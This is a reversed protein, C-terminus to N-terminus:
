AAKQIAKYAGTMIRSRITKRILRGLAQDDIKEPASALLAAYLDVGRGTGTRIRHSAACRLPALAAEAQAATIEGSRSYVHRLAQPLVALLEEESSGTEALAMMQPSVSARVREVIAQQMEFPLISDISRRGSLAMLLLAARDSETNTGAAFGAKLAAEAQSIREPLGGPFAKVMDAGGREQILKLAYWSLVKENLASDQEETTRTIDQPLGTSAIMGTAFGRDEWPTDLLTIMLQRWAARQAAEEPERRLQAAYGLCLVRVDELSIYNLRYLAPISKVCAVIDDGVAAPGAARVHRPLIRIQGHADYAIFAHLAAAIDQAPAASVRRADEVYFANLLGDCFGAIAAGNLPIEGPASRLAAKRLQLLKARIASEMGSGANFRAEALLKGTLALLPVDTKEGRRYAEAVVYPWPGSITLAGDASAQTLEAIRQLAALEQADTKGESPLARWLAAGDQYAARYVSAANRPAAHPVLAGLRVLIDGVMRSEGIMERKLPIRLIAGDAAIGSLKVGVGSSSRMAEQLSAEANRIKNEDSMDSCDIECLVDNGAAAKVLAPSNTADSVIARFGPPLDHIKGATAATVELYVKRGSNATGGDIMRGYLRRAADMVAVGDQRRMDIRIDNTRARYAMADFAADNMADPSPLCLVLSGGDNEIAKTAAALQREAVWQMYMVLNGDANRKHAVCASLWGENRRIFNQLEKKRAAGLSQLCQAAIEYEIDKIVSISMPTLTEGGAVRLREEFARTDIKLAAAEDLWNVASGDLLYIDDATISADPATVALSAHVSGINEVSLTRLFGPLGSLKGLSQPAKGQQPLSALALAVYVDTVLPPKGDRDARARRTAAMKEGAATDLVAAYEKINEGAGPWWLLGAIQQGPFLKEWAAAREPADLYVVDAQLAQMAADTTAVRSGNCAYTAGALIEAARPDSSLRDSVANWYAEPANGMDIVPSTVGANDIALQLVGRALLRRRFEKEGLARFKMDAGAPQQAAKRAWGIDICQANANGEVPLARANVLVEQEDVPIGTSLAHGCDLSELVASYRVGVVPIGLSALANFAAEDEENEILKFITTGALNPLNAARLKKAWAGSRLPRSLLSAMGVFGFAMGNMMGATDAAGSPQAPIASAPTDTNTTLSQSATRASDGGTRKDLIADFTNAFVVASNMEMTIENCEWAKGALEADHYDEYRGPIGADDQALTPGTVIWGRMQQAYTVGPIPNPKEQNFLVDHPNEVGFGTVFQKGYMNAGEVVSNWLNLAATLYRADYGGGKTEQYFVEDIELLLRAKDLKSKNSGTRWADEGVGNGFADNDALVLLQEGRKLLMDRARARLDGAGFETTMTDSFLSIHALVLTDLNSRESTTTATLKSLNKSIYALLTDRSFPYQELGAAEQLLAPQYYSLELLQVAALLREDIDRVEHVTDLEFVKAEPHSDLFNWARLAARATALAKEHDNNEAFLQAVTAMSGVYQATGLTSYNDATGGIIVRHPKAISYTIDTTRESPGEEQYITGKMAGDPVQMALMWDAQDMLLQAMAPEEQLTFPSDPRLYLSWNNYIQNIYFMGAIMNGEPLLTDPMHAVRRVVQGASDLVPINDRQIAPYAATTRYQFAGTMVPAWTSIADASVTFSKSKFLQGNLQLIIYYEGPRTIGPDIRYTTVQANKDIMENGVVGYPLGDMLGTAYLSGNKDAIYYRAGQLDGEKLTGLGTEKLPHSFYISPSLFETALPVHASVDILPAPLQFYAQANNEEIAAIAAADPLSYKQRDAASVPTMPSYEAKVQAPETSGAGPAAQQGTVFVSAPINEHYSPGNSHASGIGFILVVIGVAAALKLAPAMVKRFVSKQKTEGAQPLVRTGWATNNSTAIAYYLMPSFYFMNLFTPLLWVYWLSKKMGRQYYYILNMMLPLIFLSALFAWPASHEFVPQLILHYAVMVPSFLAAVMGLVLLVVGGSSASFLKTRILHIILKLQLYFSKKWRLQQKNYQKFTTPTKTTVIARPNYVAKKGKLITLYTMYRDDGYSGKKGRHMQRILDEVPALLHQTRAAAKKGFLAAAREKLTPKLRIDTPAVLDELRYAALCGSACSVINFISESSKGIRFSLFYIFSQLATLWNKDPDHVYGEGAVVGVDADAFSQVIEKLANKHTFSDSDIFVLINEELGIADQPVPQVPQYYEEMGEIPTVTITEPAYGPRRVREQEELYDNLAGRLSVLVADITSPGVGPRTPLDDSPQAHENEDTYSFVMPTRMQKEVDGIIAEAEERTTIKEKKARALANAITIGAYMGDRKGANKRFNVTVVNRPYLRKAEEIQYLTDRTVSNELGRPFTLFLMLKKYRRIEDASLSRDVLIDKALRRVQANASVSFVDRFEDTSLNELLENLAAAYHGATPEKAGAAALEKLILGGIQSPETLEQRFAVANLDGDQFASAGDKSCDNIAIVTIKEPPYGNGLACLITQKAAEGENFAPTVITVNPYYKRDRPPRYFFASVLRGFAFLGVLLGYIISVVRMPANIHTVAKYAITVDTLEGFSPNDLQGVLTSAQKDLLQDYTVVQVADQRSAVYAVIEEFKAVPVESDFKPTDNFKHFLLTLSQGNEAATAIWKKVDDLTTRPTVVQTYIGYPNVPLSPIEQDGLQSSRFERLVTENVAASTQFRPSAFTTPVIGHQLLAQKARLIDARTQDPPLDAVGDVHSYTHDGIQIGAAAMQQVQEWTVYKPTGVNGAIINVVGNFGYKQLTQSFITAQDAWGDDARFTVPVKNFAAEAAATNVKSFQIGDAYAELSSGAAAAIRMKIGTVNGSSPTYAVTFYSANQEQVESLKISNVVFFTGNETYGEDIYVAIGGATYRAIDVMGQAVYQAGKEVAVIRSNATGPSSISLSNKVAPWVGHGNTDVSWGQPVDWGALPNAALDAAAQKDAEAVITYPSYTDSFYSQLDAIARGKLFWASGFISLVMAVIVIKKVLAGASKKKEQAGTVPMYARRGSLKGIYVAGDQVFGPLMRLSLRLRAHTLLMNMMRSRAAAFTTRGAEDAVLGAGAVLWSQLYVAGDRTTREYADARGGLDDTLVIEHARGRLGKVFAKLIDWDICADIGGCASVMDADLQRAINEREIQWWTDFQAATTKKELLPTPITIPRGFAYGKKLVGASAVAAAVTKLDRSYIGRLKLSVLMAATGAVTAAAVALNIGPLTATIGVALTGAGAIVGLGAAVSAVTSAIFAKKNEAVAYMRYGTKKGKMRAGQVQLRGQRIPFSFETTCIKLIGARGDINFTIKEPEVPISAKWVDIVRGFAAADMSGEAAAAAMACVLADLHEQASAAPVGEGVLIEPIPALSSSVVGSLDARDALVREYVTEDYERSVGPTVMLYSIHKEELLKGIAGHFGGIVVVTVDKFDTLANLVGPIGTDHQPADNEAAMGRGKLLNAVFIENRRINADYYAIYEKEDLLKLIVRVRPDDYSLYKQLMVRYEDAHTKFHDYEAPAIKLTVLEALSRTMRSLFVLERDTTNQAYADLLRHVFVAEEDLMRVPNIHQNLQLYAFFRELNPYSGRLAPVYPRSARALNLYYEEVKDQGYEAAALQVYENYPVIGKLESLYAKVEGPLKGFRIARGLAAAQMYRSLNPYENFHEGAKAGLRGLQAYWAYTNGNGAAQSRLCGEVRGLTRSIKEAKLNEILGNLSEVNRYAQEKDRLLGVDRRVNELYFDWQELGYLADQGETVTYYEAGSLLGAGLLREMARARITSDPIASLLSTDLKGAPAGELFIKSIPRKEAFSAIIQSINRQVEPNCHLDQICIVLSDRGAFSGQVIRGYSHPLLSSDMGQVIAAGVAREKVMETVAYLPEPVIFSLVFASLTVIATIKFSKGNIFM